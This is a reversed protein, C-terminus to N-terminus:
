TVCDGYVAVVEDAVKDVPITDMRVRHDPPAQDDDSGPPQIVKHGNGLPGWRVPSMIRKGPYLGVVKTDVAVALHLPGTSNAVVTRALSLVAALTRLDTEGAIHTVSLNMKECVHDILEGEDSSGSIVVELGAGKLVSCLLIFKELPWRDASGGSGPHLVVFPEGIGAERLIRRANRLDKEVPYVTPRSIVDGDKFFELFDLNYECEHKM